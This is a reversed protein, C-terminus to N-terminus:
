RRSQIVREFLHLLSQGAAPGSHHQQAYQRANAGLAQRFAKSELAQEIRHAFEERDDAKLYHRGPEVQLGEVGITSSVVTMGSAMAELVKNRVGSAVRLPCIFLDDQFLYEAMDPVDPIVRIGPLAGLASVRRPPRAGIIDLKVEPLRKQVIPWITEIFYFLSDINPFYSFTGTFVLRPPTGNQRDRPRFHECDVSNYIMEVRTGPHNRHFVQQDIPSCCLGADVEALLKAEYAPITWREWADILRGAPSRYRTRTRDLYLTLADTFDVVRPIQQIPLAFHGMRMRDFHAVDIPYQELFFRITKELAASRIWLARLPERRYLGLACNLPGLGRPQKATRVVAGWEALQRLAPLDNREHTAFCALYVQHEECLFRIFNYPRRGYSPSPVVPTVFLIHMTKRKSSSEKGAECSRRNYSLGRLMTLNALKGCQTTRPPSGHYVEFSTHRATKCAVARLDSPVLPFVGTSLQLQAHSPTRM